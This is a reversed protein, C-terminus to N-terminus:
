RLADFSIVDFSEYKADYFPRACRCCGDDHGLSNWFFLELKKATKNSRLRWETASCEWDTLVVQDQVIALVYM